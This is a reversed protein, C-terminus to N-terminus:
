RNVLYIQTLVYCFCKTEFRKKKVIKVEVPQVFNLFYVSYDSHKYVKEAKLANNYYMRKTSKNLQNAVCHVSRYLFQM